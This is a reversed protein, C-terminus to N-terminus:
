DEILNGITLSIQDHLRLHADQKKKLFVMIRNIGCENFKRTNVDDKPCGKHASSWIINM